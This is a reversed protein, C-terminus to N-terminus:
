EEKIREWYHCCAEYYGSRATLTFKGKLYKKQWEVEHSRRADHCIIRDSLESAIKYAMERSEGGAPGDIFAVDWKVKDDVSARFDKIDLDRVAQVNKTDKGDWILIYLNESGELQVKKAWDADTEYSTVNCYESTLLSSLGAGFELVTRLDNEVIVHKIFEWEVPNIAFGGWPIGYKIANPDISDSDNYTNARLLGIEKFHECVSQPTTFIEFGAKTAKRCFAFDTGVTLIGDEDFDTHFPAKLTELVKRKILIGGTGVVDVKLLEVDNDVKTFDVPAYDDSKPNKVYAVWNLYGMMSRVKAPFGIIDKNAYVFYFPDFMPVVDNDLMLLYDCGTQLFRKVIANRNSSIPHMWTKNPNELTVKLGGVKVGEIEGGEIKWKKSTLAYMIETRVWGHNLIALYLNLKKGNGM